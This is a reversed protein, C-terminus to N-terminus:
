YKHVRSYETNFRLRPSQKESIFRSSDEERFFFEICPKQDGAWIGPAWQAAFPLSPRRALETAFGVSFGLPTAPVEMEEEETVTTNNGQQCCNM